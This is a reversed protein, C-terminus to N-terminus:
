LHDVIMPGDFGLLCFLIITFIDHDHDDYFICSFLGAIIM